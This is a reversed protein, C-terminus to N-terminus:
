TKVLPSSLQSSNLVKAGDPLQWHTSCQLVVSLPLCLIRVIFLRCSSLNIFPDATMRLQSWSWLCVLNRVPGDVLMVLIQVIEQGVLLQGADVADDTVPSGVSEDEGARHSQGVHGHDDTELREQVDVVLGM